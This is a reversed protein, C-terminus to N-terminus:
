LGPAQRGLSGFMAFLGRSVAHGSTESYPPAISKQKAARSGDFVQAALKALPAPLRVRVPVARELRPIKLGKRRGIEGHGRLHTKCSNQSGPDIPTKGKAIVGQLETFVDIGLDLGLEVIAALTKHPIDEGM